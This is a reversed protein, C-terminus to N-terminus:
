SKRLLHGAVRLLKAREAPEFGHLREAYAANREEDATLHDLSSSAHHTETPLVNAVSM